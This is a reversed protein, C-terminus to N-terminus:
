SKDGVYPTPQKKGRRTHFTGAKEAWEEVAKAKQKIVPAQLKALEESILKSGLSCANSLTATRDLNVSRCGHLCGPYHEGWTMIVTEENGRADRRTFKM